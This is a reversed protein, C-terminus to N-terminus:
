IKQPKPFQYAVYAGIAYILLGIPSLLSELFVSSFMPLEIPLGPTFNPFEEPHLGFYENLFYNQIYWETLFITVLTLVGAIIQLKHARNKGAGFYVGYGILYGLGLAVYGFERQSFITIYYWIVGGVIAAVAGLGIAGAMNVKKEENEITDNIKQRCDACLHVEAGDKGKYLFLEKSTGEKGCESCASKEDARTGIGIQEAVATEETVKQEEM